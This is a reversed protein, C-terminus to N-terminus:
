LINLLGDRLFQALVSGIRIAHLWFMEPLPFNGSNFIFIGDVRSATLLDRGSRQLSEVDQAGAWREANSERKDFTLLLRWM